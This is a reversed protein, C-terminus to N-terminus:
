RKYALENTIYLMIMNKFHVLGDPLQQSLNMIVDKYESLDYYSQVLPKRLKVLPRLWGYLEASFVNEGYLIDIIDEYSAADRMVFGDILYNGIDTICEAALHIARELAFRHILSNNM